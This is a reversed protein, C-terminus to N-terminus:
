GESKSSCMLMSATVRGLPGLKMWEDNETLFNTVDVQVFFRVKASSCKRCTYSIESRTVTGLVFEVDAVTIHTNDYM